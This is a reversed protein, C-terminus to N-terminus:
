WHTECVKGRTRNWCCSLFSSGIGGASATSSRFRYNWLDHVLSSFFFFCYRRLLILSNTFGLRLPLPPSASIANTSPSLLHWVGNWLLFISISIPHHIIIIRRGRWTPHDFDLPLLLTSPSLTVFGLQKWSEQQQQQQLYRKSTKGESLRKERWAPWLIRTLFTPTQHSTRTLTLSSKTICPKPNRRIHAYMYGM